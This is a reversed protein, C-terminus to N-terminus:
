NILARVDEIDSTDINQITGAGANGDDHVSVIAFPKCNAPIAPIEAATQTVSEVGETVVVLETVTNISLLLKRWHFATMASVEFEEGTGFKIIKDSMKVLTTGKNVYSGTMEVYTSVPDTVVTQFGTLFDQVSCLFNAFRNVDEAAVVSGMGMYSITVLAEANDSHFYVTSDEYDVYFNLASTPMVTVETYGTITVGSTQYPKEELRISYNYVSPITKIETKSVYTMRKDTKLTAISWDIVAIDSRLDKIPM